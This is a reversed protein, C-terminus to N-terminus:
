DIERFSPGIMELLNSPTVVPGKEGCGYALEGAIGHLYVALKCADIRSLGQALFSGILGALVDGMGATAMSPHGTPNYYIKHSPAAIVTMAGKLVVIVQYKKALEFAREERHHLIKAVTTNMLRAMEGVHPTLITGKPILDLLRRDESCVNLADADLVMPSKIKMFVNKLLNVFEQSNGSGPGIVWANCKQSLHHIKNIKEVWSDPLPVTMEETLKIEFIPNLDKSVCVSVKGVGSRTAAQACLCAAGTLGVSGGIIGLHGFNGKHSLRKRKPIKPLEKKDLLFQYSVFLHNPDEKIGIPIPILKGTKEIGAYAIQGQKILGISYTVDPEVSFGDVSGTDANLGSAIDISYIRSTKNMAQILPYMDESLKGKFGTGLIGDVVWVKGKMKKYIHRFQISKLVRCPISLQNLKKWNEATDSSLQDEEACLLLELQHWGSLYLHRAVVMADGGNNGKGAFLFLKDPKQQILELYLHKSISLGAREMLKLSSVGSQITYEDSSRAYSNPVIKM